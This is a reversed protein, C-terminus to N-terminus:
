LYKLVTQLLNDKEPLIEARFTVALMRRMSRRM